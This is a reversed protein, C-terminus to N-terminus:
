EDNIKEEFFPELHKIEWPQVLLRRAGYCKEVVSMTTIAEEALVYKRSSCLISDAFNFLQLSFEENRKRLGQNRPRLILPENNQGSPYFYVEKAGVTEAELCGREGFFMLTNRLRRTYSLEIRGTSRQSSGEVAMDILANSEIGGLNDDKCSIVEAKKADLIWLLLDFLHPGTDAIVGRSNKNQFIHGTRLPWSFEWGEEIDFRQINGLLNSGILKKLIQSSWSLRRVMGVGLHSGTQKAVEVMDKAQEVSSALPKECLVHLGQNLCDISIKSHSDPPTAVVVADVKGFIEQYNNCFNSIQFRRAVDKAREIDQDVLYSIVANSTM